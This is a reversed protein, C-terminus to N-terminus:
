GLFRWMSDHANFTRRLLGHFREVAINTRDQQRWVSMRDPGITAKDLWQRKVYTCLDNVQPM